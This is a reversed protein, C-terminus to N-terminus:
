SLKASGASRTLCTSLPRRVPCNSAVPPPYDIGFIKHSVPSTTNRVAEEAWASYILTATGSGIVRVRRPAPAPTTATASHHRRRFYAEAARPSDRPHREIAPCRASKVPCMKAAAVTALASEGAGAGSDVVSVNSPAPATIAPIPAHHRERLYRIADGPN